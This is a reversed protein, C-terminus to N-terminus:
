GEAWPGHQGSEGSDLRAFGHLGFYDRQGQIMNATGRAMRMTDFYGLAAAMAPVPLGAASAQVVVDRLADITEALIDAFYPAELLTKGPAVEFAEAMDDLMASRIICGARWNRAVDERMLSWDFSQAAARLMDFGQTYCLVKGCTLAAELREEGIEVANTGGFAEALTARLERKASMNRAAVAAEIVPIPTGLHQAEIATWRGTGKQGAADVIVDLLPGDTAEDHAAAVEASIEILYSSLRGENWRAFVPAVADAQMGMGDRMVGYTEAILQMDAYEIGNHVAKVFHGAGNEGLHAACPADGFKASIATLIPEVRAWHAAEGGGMIAPGHRAGEEGGSVGIGLFPRELAEMRRMTDRFNANGADIILDDPALHPDLAAIQADVPAGAPVMLLIARPAKLADALAELTECAVVRDALDGAEEVFAHTKAVTRNFVAVTFGKEAINLALASGMTGLGILGIDAKAM